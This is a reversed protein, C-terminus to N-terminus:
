DHSRVESAAQFRGLALALASRRGFALASLLFCLVAM